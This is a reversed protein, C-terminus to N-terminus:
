GCPRTASASVVDYQGTHMLTVMEDSTNAVKVNVKCGTAKEFPHGLGGKPRQHRGRRVGGVRGRQGGRARGSPAPWPSRRRRSVPRARRRGAAHDSSGCAALSWPATSAAAVAACARPRSMVVEPPTHPPREDPAWGASTSAGGSSVCPVVSGTTWGPPRRPWTPSPPWWRPGRRPTSSCGCPRASTSSRACRATSRANTRGPTSTGRHGPGAGAAPEVHGAPRVAAGGGRRRGPQDDGRLRRRLADGPGRLRRHGHRGARHCRRQLGRDPREDDVGGGPRAHRLRLHHRRRAPDGQARGADAPAAQPGPRRAARGAAAGPAPEGAGPGAGGAPAPRRVAAGPPPRRLRALQVRELAERARRTREARGVGKVRLGYAVNQELSMHPFLAYDQFVTNVDRDFPPIRTVDQGALVVRGSTPAEFGAIMRLVTTKGSGSPGLMSFFEGDAIELDVGRVAEVDGFSKRLGELRVAVAPAAVRQADLSTTSEAM